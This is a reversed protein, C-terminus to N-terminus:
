PSLSEPERFVDRGGRPRGFQISQSEKGEVAVSWNALVKQPPLMAVLLVALPVDLPVEEPVPEAVPADMVPLSIGEVELSGEDSDVAEALSLEDSVPEDSDDAETADTVDPANAAGVSATRPTACSSPTAPTTTAANYFPITASLLPTDLNNRKHATCRFGGLAPILPVFCSLHRSM